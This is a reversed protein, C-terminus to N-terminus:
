VLRGPAGHWAGGLAPPRRTADVQGDGNDDFGAVESTAVLNTGGQMNVEVQQPNASYPQQQYGAQPQGYPAGGYPQQQQQQQQGGPPSPQQAMRGITEQKQDMETVVRTKMPSWRRRRSVRTRFLSYRRRRTANPTTGDESPNYNPDDPNGSATRGWAPGYGAAESDSAALLGAQKTQLGEDMENWTDENEVEKTGAVLAVALVLVVCRMM